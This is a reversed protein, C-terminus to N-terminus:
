ADGDTQYQKVESVNEIEQLFLAVAALYEESNDEFISNHDGEPLLRLTARKAYSANRVAHSSAVM